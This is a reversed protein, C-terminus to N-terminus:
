TDEKPPEYTKITELANMLAGIDDIGLHTSVFPLGAWDIGGM